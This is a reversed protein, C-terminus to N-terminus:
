ASPAAKFAASARTGGLVTAATFASAVGGDTVTWTVAVTISGTDADITCGEGSCATPDPNSAISMAPTVTVTATATVAGGPGSWSTAPVVITQSTLRDVTLTTYGTGNWYVLGATRSTTAATTRQSLGREVRAADSYGTVRVLGNPAAGAAWPGTGFVAAGVSRTTGAAICGPGSLITCGTTATGVASTFRAASTTATGGGAVSAVGFATGAVSLGVSGSSGGSTTSAGCPQGAPVGGSCSAVTSAKAVGSTGSPGSLTLVTAGSSLTGSSSSGLSSVDAPNPPAAGTSGVDNSAANTIKSLGSTVAAATVDPTALTVGAHLVSADVTSAQQSSVGVGAQGASVTAISYPSGPLLTAGAPAPTVPASPDTVPSAPSLTTTWGTAGASASLLAQCAGLFPQNGADGCGGAPAYAESRVVVSGTTDRQNVVWSTVVTLSVVGDATSASRSVYARSTFTVGPLQPDTTVVKNTGGPGSLPAKDTAQSSSTVLVDDVGPSAVPRLRGGSVNPDGGAASLFSTHLGNSLVLWPLARLQEMTQNAVATAQTRQRAHTTTVLASTQVAILTVLVGTIVVMAVVLEILTFGDDGRVADGRVARRTPDPM